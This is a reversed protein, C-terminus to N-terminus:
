SQVNSPQQEEKARHFAESVSTYSSRPTYSRKQYYIETKKNDHKARQMDDLLGHHKDCVDKVPQLKEIMDKAARRERRYGILEKTKSAMEEDTWDNESLELYHQLDMIRNEMDEQHAIAMRLTRPIERYGGIVTDAWASPDIMDEWRQRMDEMSPPRYMGEEVPEQVNMVPLPEPAEEQEEEAASALVPPMNNVFDDIKQSFEVSTVYPNKRMEKRLRVLEKIPITVHKDDPRVWM